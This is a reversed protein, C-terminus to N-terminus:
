KVEAEQKPPYIGALRAVLMLMMPLIVRGRQTDILYPAIAILAVISAFLYFCRQYYIRGLVSQLKGIPIPESRRQHPVARATSDHPRKTSDFGAADGPVCTITPVIDM